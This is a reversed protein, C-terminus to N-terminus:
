RAAAEQRALETEFAAQSAAVVRPLEGPDVFPSPRGPALRARKAALDFQEGHPALFVDAHMTKLRAFSAQYDAVIGPYQPGREKSALRNAAVSTSCYYLAQRVTGDIRVPFTWTTCGATHGPTRHATLTVGGLSVTDGDRLVRDVKVPPTRYAAVEEWGLYTGSELASRDEAMAALSAGTDRKLQALAGSHDYHAHSNLLVKVDTPKFGLKRISDEVLTAGQPMGGDLLVHGAPTTILWASLGESGVYYLNDALRFPATPRTWNAQALAASGVAAAALAAALALAIKM